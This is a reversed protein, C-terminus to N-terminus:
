IALFTTVVMALALVRAFHQKIEITLHRAKITLRVDLKDGLQQLQHGLAIILFGVVLNAWSSVGVAMYILSAAMYVVGIMTALHGVGKLMIFMMQSLSIRENRTEFNENLLYM